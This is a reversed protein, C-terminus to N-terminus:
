PACNLSPDYKDGLTKAKAQASPQYLGAFTRPPQAAGRGGGPAGGRGGTPSANRAGIDAGPWCVGSLGPQGDATRPVGAPAATRAPATQAAAFSLFASAFAATAIFHKFM